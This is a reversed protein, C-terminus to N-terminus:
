ISSHVLLYILNILYQGILLPPLDLAVTAALNVTQLGLLNAIIVFIMWSEVLSEFDTTIIIHVVIGERQRSLISDDIEIDVKDQILYQLMDRQFTSDM